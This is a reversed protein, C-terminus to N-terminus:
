RRRHAESLLLPVLLDVPLTSATNHTSPDQIPCSVVVWMPHCRLAWPLASSVEPLHTLMLLDFWLLSSTPSLYFRFVFLHCNGKM